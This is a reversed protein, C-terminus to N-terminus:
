KANETPATHHTKLHTKTKLNKHACSELSSISAMLPTLEELTMSPIMSKVVDLHEQATM